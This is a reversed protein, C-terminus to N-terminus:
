NNQRPTTGPAGRSDATLTVEEVSGPEGMPQAENGNVAITVGGANGALVTLKEKATWVHTGESLIGEFATEGDAKVVIWSEDTITLGVRVSQGEANANGTTEVTTSSSTSPTSTPNVAPAVNSPAPQSNPSPATAPATPADGSTQSVSYSLGRVSFIIISIYLLYLHLPRLQAAPSNRWSRPRAKLELGTPFQRAYELGDLGLVDAFRRLFGQVYVPEPLKDLNGEEIANLLRAPILTRRSVWDLTLSRDCRLQHLHSGLEALTEAQVQQLDRQTKKKNRFQIRTFKM